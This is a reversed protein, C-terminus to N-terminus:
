SVAFEKKVNTALFPFEAQEQFQCAPCNLTNIQDDFILQRNDPQEVWISRYLTATFKHDCSSCTVQAEVQKSM